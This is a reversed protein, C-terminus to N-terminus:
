TKGWPSWKTYSQASGCGHGVHQDGPCFFSAPRIGSAKEAIEPQGIYVWKHAVINLVAHVFQESMRQLDM